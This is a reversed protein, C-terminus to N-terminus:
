CEIYSLIFSSQNAVIEQLGIWYFNNLYFGFYKISQLTLFINDNLIEILHSQSSM